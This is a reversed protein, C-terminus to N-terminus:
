VELKLADDYPVPVLISADQLAYDAIIARLIEYSKRNSEIAEADIISALQVLQKCESQLVNVKEQLTIENMIIISNM